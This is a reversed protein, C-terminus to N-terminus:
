SQKGAAILCVVPRRDYIQPQGTHVKHIQDQYCSPQTLRQIIIFVKINQFSYNDFLLDYRFLQWTFHIHSDFVPSSRQWFILIGSFLTDPLAEEEKFAYLISNNPISEVSPM